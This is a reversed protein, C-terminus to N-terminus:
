PEICEVSEAPVVIINNEFWITNSRVGMVFTEDLITCPLSKYKVAKGPCRMKYIGKRPSVIAPNCGDVGKTCFPEIAQLLAEELVSTKTRGQIKCIMDFQEYIVRDIYSNFRRGDKKKRM